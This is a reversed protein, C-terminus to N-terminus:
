FQIRYMIDPFFGLQKVEDIRDTVKNYRRVFVNERNSVNQLDVYWQQSIKKNKSNLRFGFKVDWRFYSSYQKSFALDEQLVEEGANLRTAELDVPTYYKGGSTALKTDFTIANRGNAGVEGGGTPRLIFVFSNPQTKAFRSEAKKIKGM